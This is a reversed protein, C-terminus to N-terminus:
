PLVGATQTKHNLTYVHLTKKEDYVALYVEKYDTLGYALLDSKLENESINLKQLTNEYLTGDSIAVLPMNEAKKTLNMDNPTLPRKDPKIIISVQGNAEMVAYDVDTLSPTGGLRLQETLENLSIRLKKLEQNNIKGNEILISPKGSVLNKFKESKLSVYSILAQLTLLSFIAVIGNIIPVHTSAIPIAALEAVMFIIVLQFPSMNSLGSKGMIRIAFLVILYLIFTRFLVIVLLIGGEIRVYFYKNYITDLIQNQYVRKLLM